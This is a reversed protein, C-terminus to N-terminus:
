GEANALVAWAGHDVSLSLLRRLLLFGSGRGGCGRDQLGRHIYLLAKLPSPLSYSM